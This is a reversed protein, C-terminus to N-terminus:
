NKKDCKAPIKYLGWMREINWRLENKLEGLISLVNELFIIEAQDFIFFTQNAVLKAGEM